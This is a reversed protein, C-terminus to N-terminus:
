AGYGYIACVGGNAAATESAADRQGRTQALGTGQHGSVVEPTQQAASDRDRQRYRPVRVRLRLLHRIQLEFLAGLGPRIDAGDYGRRPGRSLVEQGCPDLLMRGRTDAPPSRVTDLLIGHGVDSSLQPFRHSHLRNNKQVQRRQLRPDPRHRSPEQTHGKGRPKPPHAGFYDPLVRVLLHDLSHRLRSLLLHFQRLPSLGRQPLDRVLLNEHPASQQLPRRPAGAQLFPDFPVVGSRQLHHSRNEFGNRRWVMERQVGPTELRRVARLHSHHYVVGRSMSGAGVGSISGRFNTPRIGRQGLFRSQGERLGRRHLVDRHVGEPHPDTRCLSSVTRRFPTHLQPLAYM